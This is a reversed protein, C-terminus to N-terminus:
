SMVDEVIYIYVDIQSGLDLYWSNWSALTVNMRAVIVQLIFVYILHQEVAVPAPVLPPPVRDRAGGGTLDFELDFLHVHFV